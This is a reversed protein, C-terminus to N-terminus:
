NLSSIHTVIEDQISILQEILNNKDRLEGVATILATQIARFLKIVDAKEVEDDSLKCMWLDAGIASVEMMHDFNLGDNEFYKKIFEDDGQLMLSATLLAERIEGSVEHAASSYVPAISELLGPWESYEKGSSMIAAMPTAILLKYSPASMKESHVEIKQDKM